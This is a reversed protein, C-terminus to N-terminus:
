RAGGREVPADATEGASVSVIRQMDAFSDIKSGDIAVVLDGPKFGAAAAASDPQM